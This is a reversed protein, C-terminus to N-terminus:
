RCTNNNDSYINPRQIQMIREPFEPETFGFRRYLEQADKTGLSLARLGKVWDLDMLTKMMIKSLGKGRHPETIYVDALYAITAYDTIFRGYGVQEDNKIIGICFSNDFAGKVTKYPIQKAWYSKESLWQHIQDLYMKQKDTTLLYGEHIINVPNM